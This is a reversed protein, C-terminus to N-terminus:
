TGLSGLVWQPWPGQVLLLASHELLSPVLRVQTLVGGGSVGVDPAELYHPVPSVENDQKVDM